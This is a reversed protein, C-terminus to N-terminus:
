SWAGRTGGDDYGHGWRVGKCKLMKTQEKEQRGLGAARAKSKNDRDGRGPLLARGGSRVSFCPGKWQRSM